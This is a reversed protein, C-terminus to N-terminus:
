LTLPTHLIGRGEGREPARERPELRSPAATCVGVLLGALLLVSLHVKM